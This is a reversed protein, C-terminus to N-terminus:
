HVPWASFYISSLLIWLVVAECALLVLAWVTSEAIAIARHATSGMHGGKEPFVPMGHTLAHGTKM